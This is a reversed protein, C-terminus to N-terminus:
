RPGQPYEDFDKLMEPAGLTAGVPLGVGEISLDACDDTDVATIYFEFGEGLHKTISPKQSSGPNEVAAEYMDLRPNNLINNVLGTTAFKPPTNMKCALTPNPVISTELVQDPANWVSQSLGCEGDASDPTCVSATMNGEGYGCVSCGQNGYVGDLNAHTPLGAERRCNKGCFYLPGDYLYAMFDVPVKVQDDSVMVVM